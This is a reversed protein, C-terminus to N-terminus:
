GIGGFKFMVVEFLLWNEINLFWKILFYKWDFDGKDCKLLEFSIIIM